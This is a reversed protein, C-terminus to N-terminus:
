RILGSSTPIRSRVCQFLTFPQADRKKKGFLWRLFAVFATWLAVILGVIAPIFDKVFALILAKIFWILNKFM